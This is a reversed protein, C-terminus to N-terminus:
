ELQRVEGNVNKYVVFILGEEPCQRSWRVPDVVLYALM